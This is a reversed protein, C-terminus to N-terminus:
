ESLLEEKRKRDLVDKESKLIKNKKAVSTKIALYKEKFTNIERMLYTEDKVAQQTSIIQANRFEQFEMQLAKITENQQNIIKAQNAEINRKQEDKERIIQKEQLKHELKDHPHKTALEAELEAIKKM